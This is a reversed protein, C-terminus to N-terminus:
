KRRYIERRHGVRLVGIENGEIDFIVRYDGIRFRYGGM